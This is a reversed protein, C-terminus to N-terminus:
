TLRQITMTWTGYKYVFDEDNGTGSTLATLSITYTGPTSVNNDVAQLVLCQEPPGTSQVEYLRTRTRALQAGVITDAGERIRMTVLGSNSAAVEDISCVFTSIIKYTNWHTPITIALNAEHRETDLNITGDPVDGAVWLTEPRVEIAAEIAVKNAEIDALLGTVTEELRVGMEELFAPLDGGEPPTIGRYFPETM